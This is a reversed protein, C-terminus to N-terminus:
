RTQWIEELWAQDPMGPESAGNRALFLHRAIEAQREINYDRLRAGPKPKYAYARAGLAGLKAGALFVGRAAQWVHMLEHILWGQEDLPTCSFDECARWRSFVVTRGRPVMAGFGLPPAQMVRVRSWDIEDGFISRGLAIEDANLRRRRWIPMRPNLKAM